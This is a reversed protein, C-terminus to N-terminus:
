IYDEEDSFIELYDELETILADFDENPGLTAALTLVVSLTVGYNDAVGQLYERRNRYGHNRYVDINM